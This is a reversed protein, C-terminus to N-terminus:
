WSDARGQGEARVGVKGTKLGQGTPSLIACVVGAWCATKTVSSGKKYPWFDEKLLEAKKVQGQLGDLSLFGYVPSSLSYNQACQLSPLDLPTLIVIHPLFTIVSFVIGEEEKGKLFFYWSSTQFHLLLYIAPALGDWGMVRVRSM